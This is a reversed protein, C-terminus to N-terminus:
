ETGIIVPKGQVDQMIDNNIREKESGLPLLNCYIVLSGLQKDEQSISGSYQPGWNGFHQDGFVARSPGRTTQAVFGAKGQERGDEEEEGRWLWGRRGAEERNTSEQSGQPSGRVRCM